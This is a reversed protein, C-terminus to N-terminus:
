KYLEDLLLEPKEMYRKLMRLSKSFYYGDAIREDITFSLKIVKKVVSVGKSNYTTKYSKEGVEIFISNTGWNSLHHYGINLGISGLNTFFLSCRGPDTGVIFDPLWGHRDFLRLLWGIFHKGPFKKVVEMVDTTQDNETKCKKIQENLKRQITILTDDKESNIQAFTEDGDDDMEKKVVFGANIYNRLYLNQNAYFRNLKERKHMIKFSAALIVGFLSLREDEPKGENYEKIFKEINELEINMSVYAENDSRNPYILPMFYHMGDIDRLLKGDRRDGPKRM